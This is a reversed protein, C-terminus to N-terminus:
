EQSWKKTIATAGDVAGGAKASVTILGDNAFTYDFDASAPKFATAKTAVDSVTPQGANSLALKAFAMNMTSIGESLAGKMANKKADTQIDMYKPVAVAALIGLIVLVAIIEILTFGKENHIRKMIKIGKRCDM